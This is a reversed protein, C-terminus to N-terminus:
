IQVAQLTLPSLLRLFVRVCTRVCACVRKGPQVCVRGSRLRCRCCRQGDGEARPVVELREGHPGHVGARDGNRLPVLLLVHLDGPQARIVVPVSGPGHDRM